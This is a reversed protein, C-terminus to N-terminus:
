DEEEVWFTFAHDRDFGILGCDFTASSLATWEMSGDADASWLGNAVFNRNSGLANLALAASKFDDSRPARFGYALGVTGAVALVYAVQQFNLTLLGPPVFPDHRATPYGIHAAIARPVSDAPGDPRPGIWWRADCHAAYLRFLSELMEM